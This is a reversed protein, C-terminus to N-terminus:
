IAYIAGAYWAVHPQSFRRAKPLRYESKISYGFPCNSIQSQSTFNNSAIFGSVRGRFARLGDFFGGMLNNAPKLVRLQFMVPKYSIDDFRFPKPFPSSARRLAPSPTEEGEILVLILSVWA